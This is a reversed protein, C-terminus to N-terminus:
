LVLVTSKVHFAPTTNWIRIYLYMLFSLLYRYKVTSDVTELVFAVKFEKLIYLYIFSIFIVTKGYM